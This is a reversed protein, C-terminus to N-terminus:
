FRVKLFFLMFFFKVGRVFVIFKLEERLKVLEIFDVEDCYGFYFIKLVVFMIKVM